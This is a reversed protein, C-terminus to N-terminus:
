SESDRFVLRIYSWLYYELQTIRDSLGDRVGFDKYTELPLARNSDFKQYPIAIM